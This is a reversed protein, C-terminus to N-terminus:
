WQEDDRRTTPSAGTNAQRSSGEQRGHMFVHLLPCALLILWPLWGVLHTRHEVALLMLSFAALGGFVWRSRRNARDGSANRSTEHAPQDHTNVILEKAPLDIENSLDNM